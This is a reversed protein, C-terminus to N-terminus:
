GPRSLLAVLRARAEPLPRAAPDPCLGRNLFHGTLALARGLDAPTAAPSLDRLFAPLPLLRGAWDGAGVRSVARGTRPSVYALDTTGGTVACRALDLGFGIEELLRLEWRLYLLPWGEVGLADLLAVTARYLAPHPEREPLARSCLACVAALGALARRDALLAAARPRLPEVTFRGLHDDLRAKWTADLQAGPQLFPAVRRSAGGRVVGAFRGHEETLLDIIATSEGHGRMSLLVGEARWQM